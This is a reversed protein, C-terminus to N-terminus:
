SFVENKISDDFILNEWIGDFEHCPLEWLLSGAVSEKEHESAHIELTEPERCMLKYIHVNAVPLSTESLAM